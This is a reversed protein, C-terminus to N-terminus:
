LSDSTPSPDTQPKATFREEQMHSARSEIGHFLGFSYYGNSTKGRVEGGWLPFCALDEQPARNGKGIHLVWPM